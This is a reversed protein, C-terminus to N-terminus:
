YKIIEYKEKLSLIRLVSEDIRSESIEGSNVAEYISEFAQTYNQPMLVIDTGATIALVAAEGSSYQNAIAGMSMSDSIIIGDYNMEKRLKGEIMEYSLSSPLKDSTINEATIHSIMIMDTKADIGAKFPILECAKLEEWTKEVSVFGNHTDDKTDGHGPFHKICSMIGSSHLGEVGASVMDAVLEPDNGFARNGIVINDPNTLQHRACCSKCSSIRCIYLFSLLVM